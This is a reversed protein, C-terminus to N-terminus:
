LGFKNKSGDPTKIENVPCWHTPFFDFETGNSEEYTAYVSGGVWKSVHDDLDSFEICIGDFVLYGVMNNTPMGVEKISRWNIM